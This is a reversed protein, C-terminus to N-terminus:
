IAPMGWIGSFLGEGSQSICGVKTLAGKSGEEAEKDDGAEEDGEDAEEDGSCPFHPHSDAPVPVVLEIPFRRWAGM